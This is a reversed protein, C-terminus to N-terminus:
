KKEEPNERGKAAIEMLEEMSLDRVTKTKKSDSAKQAERLARKELAQQRRDLYTRVSTTNGKIANNMLQKIVATHTSIRRSRGNEKITIYEASVRLLEQDFDLVVKPRGGPNGSVGKTFRTREPPKKYGVDYSTKPEGVRTVTEDTGEIEQDTNPIKEDESM